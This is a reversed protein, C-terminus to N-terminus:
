GKLTQYFALAQDVILQRTAVSDPVGAWANSKPGYLKQYIGTKKFPGYGDKMLIALVTLLDLDKKNRASADVIAPILPYAEIEVVATKVNLGVHDHGVIEKKLLEKVQLSNKKLFAIQRESWQQQGTEAGPLRGFILHEEGNVALAIYCAQNFQEPHIMVYTFKEELSLAGFKGTTLPPALEEEFPDEKKGNTILHRVKDLGYPPAEEYLRYSHHAESPSVSTKSPTQSVALCASPLLLSIAFFNNM